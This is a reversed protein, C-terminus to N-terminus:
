EIGVAEMKFQFLWDYFPIRSLKKRFDPISLTEKSTYIEKQLLNGRLLAAPYNVGIGSLYVPDFGEQKEAAGRAPEV